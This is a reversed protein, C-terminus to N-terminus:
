SFVATSAQIMLRRWCTMRSVRVTRQVGVGEILRGVDKVLEDPVLEAVPVQFEDFGLEIIFLVRSGAAVALPDEEPHEAGNEAEQVGERGKHGLLDPLLQGAGLAADHHRGIGLRLGSEVVGLGFGLHVQDHLGDGGDAIDPAFHVHRRAGLHLDEEVARLGGGDFGQM